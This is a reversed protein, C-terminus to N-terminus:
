LSSMKAGEEMSVSNKTLNYKGIESFESSDMHRAKALLIPTFTFCTQAFTLSGAQSISKKWEALFIAIDWTFTVRDEKTELSFSIISM